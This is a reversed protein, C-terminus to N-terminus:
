FGSVVRSDSMHSRHKQTYAKSGATKKNYADTLEKLFNQQATSIKSVQKDIKPSAGFPKKHEKIEDESLIESSPNIIPKVENIKPQQVPAPAPNNIQNNGQLLEI